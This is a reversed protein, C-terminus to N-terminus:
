NKGFELVVLHRDIVVGGICWVLGRGIQGAVIEGIVGGAPLGLGGRGVGESAGASGESVDKGVYVM